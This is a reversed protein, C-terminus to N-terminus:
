KGSGARIAANILTLQLAAVVVGGYRGLIHQTAQLHGDMFGPRLPPARRLPRTHLRYFYLRDDARVMAVKITRVKQAPNSEDIVRGLVFLTEDNPDAEYVRIARNFVFSALHLDALSLPHIFGVDDRRMFKQQWPVIREHASRGPDNAGFVARAADDFLDFFRPERPGSYLQNLIGKYREVVATVFTQRDL